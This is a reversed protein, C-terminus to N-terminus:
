PTYNRLWDIFGDYPKWCVAYKHYLNNIQNVTPCEGYYENYEKIAQEYTTKIKRM